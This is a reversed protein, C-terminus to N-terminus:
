FPNKLSNKIHFIIIHEIKLNYLFYSLYKILIHLKKKRILVLIVYVYM